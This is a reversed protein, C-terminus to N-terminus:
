RNPRGYGVTGIIKGDQTDTSAESAPPGPGRPQTMKALGFDLIKARGDRTIMLYAPKLDRHTIGAAHAAALGEAIQAAVDIARGSRSSAQPASRRAM